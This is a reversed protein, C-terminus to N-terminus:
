RWRYYDWTRVRLQIELSHLDAHLRAVERRLQRRDDGGHQFKWNVQDAERRIRAYDHRIQRGANYRGLEWRVHGLMRNLHNIESDLRDWRVTQYDSRNESEYDHAFLRPSGVSLGLIMLIVFTLKKMEFRRRLRRRPM